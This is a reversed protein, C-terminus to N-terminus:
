ADRVPVIIALALVRNDSLTAKCSLKYDVGSTGATMKQTVVGSAQTPSGSLVASPTADTGQWTSATVSQSNITAAGLYPTFDFTIPILEQPDKTSAIKTM